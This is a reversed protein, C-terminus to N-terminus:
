RRLGVVLRAVCGLCGRYILPLRRRCTCREVPEYCWICLIM